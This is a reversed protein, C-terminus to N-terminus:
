GIRAPRVPTAREGTQRPWRFEDMGPSAMGAVRSVYHDVFLRMALAATHWGSAILGGFPGREALVPDTHIPQPDEVPAGFDQGSLCRTSEMDM